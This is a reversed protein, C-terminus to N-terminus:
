WKSKTLFKTLKTLKTITIWNTVQNNISENSQKLSAVITPNPKHRQM